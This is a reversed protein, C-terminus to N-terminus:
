KRPRALARPHDFREDDVLGVAAERRRVSTCRCGERECEVGRRGRLRAIADIIALIGTIVLLLVLTTLTPIHMNTVM